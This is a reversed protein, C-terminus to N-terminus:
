FRIRRPTFFLRERRYEPDRHPGANLLATVKQLYEQRSSFELVLTCREGNETNEASWTLEDPCSQQLLQSLTLGTADLQRQTFSCTMVRRGSFGRDVSFETELPSSCGALLAALVFILFLAFLCRKQKM